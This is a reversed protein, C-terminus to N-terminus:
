EQVAVPQGHLSPSSEYLMRSLALLAVAAGTLIFFIGITLFAVRNRNPEKRRARQMQIRADLMQLLQEPTASSSDTEKM